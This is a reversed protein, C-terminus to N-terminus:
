HSLRMNNLIKATAQALFLLSFFIDKVEIRQNNVEVDAFFQLVIIM